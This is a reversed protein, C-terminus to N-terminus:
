VGRRIIYDDNQTDKFTRKKNAIDQELASIIEGRLFDNLGAWSKPTDIWVELGAKKGAMTKRFSNPYCVKVLREYNDWSKDEAM